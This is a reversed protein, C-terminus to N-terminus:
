NQPNSPGGFVYKHGNYKLADGIIQQGSASGGTPAATPSTATNGGSTSSSPSANNIQITESTKVSSLNGSLVGTVTDVISAGKIGSFLILGGVVSYGVAAASFTM